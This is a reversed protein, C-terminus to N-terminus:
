GEFRLLFRVGIVPSVDASWYVVLPINFKGSEDFLSAPNPCIPGFIECGIVISM